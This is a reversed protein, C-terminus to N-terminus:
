DFSAYSGGSDEALWRLLAFDTGVAICHIAVNRNANWEAVADRIAWPDIVRGASPEGDTVLYITDVDRDQFAARLGGHLNTGGGVSLNALYETAEAVDEPTARRPEESWRSAGSSFFILNFEARPELGGLARQIERVALDMRTTPRKRWLDAEVPEEMSGSTDLVFAVRNSILRMGFFVKEDELFVSRAEPDTFLTRTVRKLELEGLEAEKRALAAPGIVEFTAGEEEWWAKWFRPHPGFTQGTLRFLIAALDHVMRGEERAIQECLAGVGAVSRLRELGTAATLRVSWVEDSLAQILAPELEPRAALALRKAAAARIEPLPDDLRAVLEVDLDREGARIRAIAALAEAQLAPNDGEALIGELAPLAAVDRREGMTAIVRRVVRPSEDGLLQRYARDVRPDQLTRTARLYFLKEHESGRGLKRLLTKDVTPDALEVLLDAIGDTLQDPCIRHTAEAIVRKAARPGDLRLLLEASVLRVEPAERGDELRKEALAETRPAGRRALEELAHLRIAAEPDDECAEALEDETWRSLLAEFAVVRLEALPLDEDRKPEVRAYLTRYWPEDAEALRAAHTSLALVRVRDEAASEVIRALQARGPEGVRGLLAIAEDRLVDSPSGMAVDFLRAVAADAHEGPAYSAIARLMERRMYVSYMREYLRLLDELAASTRLAALEALTGEDTADALREIEAVLEERTRDAGPQAALAFGSLLLGACLGSQFPSKM